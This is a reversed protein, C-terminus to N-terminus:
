WLHSSLQKLRCWFLMSPNQNKASLLRSNFAGTTAMVTCWLFNNAALARIGSGVDTFGRDKPCYEAPPQLTGFRPLVVLTAGRRTQETSRLLSCLAPLVLCHCCSSSLCGSVMLGM